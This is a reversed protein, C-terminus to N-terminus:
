KNYEREGFIDTGVRVFTAGELIAEKYDSSTGMSLHPFKKGFESELKDRLEYLAKFYKRNEGEVTQFPPLCMFGQLELTSTNLVSEVLKFCESPMVGSKQEEEGINVEILINQKHMKQALVKDLALVLRESDITHLFSYGKCAEKAKNTQIHGISHWQLLEFLNSNEEKLLAEVQPIKDKAEKFYSEAFHTHGLKALEVILSATHFKSVALLTVSDIDRNAKQCTDKIIEQVKNYREQLM